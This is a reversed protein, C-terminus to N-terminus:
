TIMMNTNKFIKPINTHIAKLRILLRNRETLIFLYMKRCTAGLQFGALEVVVSVRQNEM